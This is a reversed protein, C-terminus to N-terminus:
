SRLELCFELWHGQMSTPANVMFEAFEILFLDSQESNSRPYAFLTNSRVETLMGHAQLREQLEEFHMPAVQVIRGRFRRYPSFLLRIQQTLALLVPAPAIRMM